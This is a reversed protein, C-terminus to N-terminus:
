RDTLALRAGLAVFAGAFTRRMWTLVRPRSIVHTRIAAAFLGYGVFVVLTVLMFVASLALM